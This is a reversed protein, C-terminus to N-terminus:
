LLGNELEKQLTKLRRKLRIRQIFSAYDIILKGKLHDIEHQLARALLDYASISVKENQENLGSVTIRRARKVRVYVGPLSLCGEEKAERGSKKTIRPNILAFPGTGVDVLVMQKNIGVQPAALGVGGALHMLDSMEALAEREKDTVETVPKAPKRLVPDGYFRLKLKTQVM